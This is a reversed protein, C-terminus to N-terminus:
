NFRYSFGWEDLLLAPQYGRGLALHGL